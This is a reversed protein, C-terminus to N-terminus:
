QRADESFVIGIGGWGCGVIKESTQHTQKIEAWLRDVECGERRHKVADAIDHFAILRPALTQAFEWDDRAGSYTHDGDIFVVSFPGLSTVQSKVLDDNSSGIIMPQVTNDSQPAIDVSVTSVDPCRRKIAHELGGHKSGIVLIRDTPQLHSCFWDLERLHQECRPGGIRDVEWQMQNNIVQKYLGDIDYGLKFGPNNVLECWSEHAPFHDGPWAEVGGYGTKVARGSLYKARVAFFTGSYHWKNNPSLPMSGFTRFSGFLKYGDSMKQSVRDRNFLVTEYMIETWTSVAESDRTHPRVGKGHCYLLIDDPGTPIRNQLERFTPNEGQPTNPLEFTEFKPSLVSQVYELTDTSEDTAVGVICKGDIQEAIENWRYAHREWNGTVPWLHCGLHFVPQGIFPDAAPPPASDCQEALKKQADSVNWVGTRRAPRRPPSKVEVADRLVGALIFRAARRAFFEGISSNIIRESIGLPEAILHRNAVMRQVILSEANRHCWEIGNRDMEKALDACGCNKTGKVKTIRSLRAKLLSGANCKAKKRQKSREIRRIEKAIAVAAEQQGDVILSAAAIGRTVM